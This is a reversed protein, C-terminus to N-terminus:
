ESDNKFRVRFSYESPNPGNNVLQIYFNGSVILAAWWINRDDHLATLDIGLAAYILSASGRPDADYIKIDTDTSDGSTRLARVLEFIGSAAILGTQVQQIWEGGSAAVAGSAFTNDYFLSALPLEEWAPSGDDIYRMDRNLADVLCVWGEQPINADWVDGDFEVLDLKGAGDWSAHVSGGTDDLIYRAGSTETPTAATCDVYALVARQRAEGQGPGM